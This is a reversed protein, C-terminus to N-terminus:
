ATAISPKKIGVSSLNYQHELRGIEKDHLQEFNGYKLDCLEKNISKLDLNVCMLLFASYMDRQVKSGDDFDHWRKSLPKKKYADDLHCYQSAGVSWTDVRHLEKGQYQLKQNLIRLFMAPAKHLISKGFRKKQKFDDRINKEAKKSRRALSAFNMKEVYIEDGLSLVFNALENHLQKKKATLKRNLDKLRALIKIYHNSRVWKRRGKKPTRDKNFNEPNTGWRSRNLQRQLCRVKDETFDVGKALEELRVDSESAIAVTQTGIDLGVPGIGRPHKVEGTKANVKIPPVGEMVLQLYYKDKAKSMKKVIKCFKINRTLAEQVYTDKPKICVPIELGSWYVTNNRFRIGMSNTKGELSDIENFKKFYVQNANGLLLDKIAEWVRTAVKQTTNIDLSQFHRKMSVIDSHFDYEFLRHERRLSSLVKNKDKGKPLKMAQQYVQSRQMINYRKLAQGLCANFIKRGVEFRKALINNQFQQTKLPLTLIFSPTKARRMHNGGLNLAKVNTFFNYQIDDEGLFRKEGALRQSFVIKEIIHLIHIHKCFLCLREV